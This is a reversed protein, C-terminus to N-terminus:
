LYIGAVSFSLLSQTGPSLFYDGHLGHEGSEREGAAEEEGGALLGGVVVAAERSGGCGGQVRLAAVSLDVAELLGAVVLRLLVVEEAHAVPLLQVALLAGPDSGVILAAVRDGEIALANPDDVEVRLRPRGMLDRDGSDGAGGAAAVDPPSGEGPLVVDGAAVAGDFSVVARGSGAGNVDELVAVGEVFLLGWGGFLEM